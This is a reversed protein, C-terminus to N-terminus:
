TNYCYGDSNTKRAGVHGSGMPVHGDAFPDGWGRHIGM